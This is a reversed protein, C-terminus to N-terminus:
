DRRMQQWGRMLNAIEQVRVDREDKRRLISVVQDLLDAKTQREDDAEYLDILATGLWYMISGTGVDHNLDSAISPV